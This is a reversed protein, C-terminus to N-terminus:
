PNQSIYDKIPAASCLYILPSPVTSKVVKVISSSIRSKEQAIRSLNPDKALPFCLSCVQQQVQWHWSTLCAPLSLWLSERHGPVLAPSVRKQTLVQDHLSSQPSRITLVSVEPAVSGWAYPVPGTTHQSHLASSGVKIRKQM